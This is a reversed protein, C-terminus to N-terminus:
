YLGRTSRDQDTYSPGSSYGAAARAGTLDSGRSNSDSGGLFAAPNAAFAQSLAADVAARQENSWSNVAQTGAKVRDAYEQAARVEGSSFAAKDRLVDWANLNVGNRNMLGSDGMAINWDAQRGLQGGVIGALPGGIASALTGALLAGPDMVWADHMYGMDDVATGTSMGLVSMKGPEATAWEPQVGHFMDPLSSGPDIQQGGWSTEAGRSQSDRDVQGTPTVLPTFASVAQEIDSPPPHGPGSGEPPLDPQLAPAYFLWEPLMGAQRAVADTPFQPRLRALDALAM